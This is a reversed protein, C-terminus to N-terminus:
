YLWQLITKKREISPHKEFTIGSYQPAIENNTIKGHYLHNIFISGGQNSIFQHTYLSGCVTGMLEVNGDCYLEGVVTSSTALYINTNFDPAQHYSLFCVSGLVRTDEGLYIQNKQSSQSLTRKATELLVLASPYQFNCNRQVDISQTSFIQINGVFGEEVKVNPAVVIVDNLIATRSITILTDSKVIINGKLTCNQLSIKNRDVLYRTSEFFSQVMTVGEISPLPEGNSYFDEIVFQRVFNRVENKIAPLQEESRRQTGYILQSGYYSEGMISGSKVGQKPLYCVGNLSTNGVLVLPKFNEKLYLTPINKTDIFSSGILGVKKFQKTRHTTEVFGKEFIGWHSLHTRIQYSADNSGSAIMLTDRMLPTQDQLLLDFGDHSDKVVKIASKSQELFFRHMYTLTLLAALLIAVITSIFVALQLAGSKIKQNWWRNM